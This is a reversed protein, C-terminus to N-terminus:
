RVTQSCTSTTKVQDVTIMQNLTIQGGVQNNTNASRPKHSAGAVGYASRKPASCLGLDALSSNECGPLAAQDNNIIEKWIEGSAENEM